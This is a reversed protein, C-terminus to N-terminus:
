SDFLDNNSVNGVIFFFNVNKKLTKHIKVSSNWSARGGRSHRIVSGSVRNIKNKNFSPKLTWYIRPTKGHFNDFIHECFINFISNIWMNEDNLQAWAVFVWIIMHVTQKEPFMKKSLRFFDSENKCLSLHQGKRLLFLFTSTKPPRKGNTRIIKNSNYIIDNCNMCKFINATSQKFAQFCCKLQSFILFYKAYLRMCM